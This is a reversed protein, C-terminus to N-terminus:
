RALALLASTLEESTPASEKALLERALRSLERRNEVTHLGDLEGSVWSIATLAGRIVPSRLALLLGMDFPEAKGRLRERHQGVLQRAAATIGSVELLDGVVLFRERREIFGDIAGTLLLMEPRDITGTAEVLVVPALTRVSVTM